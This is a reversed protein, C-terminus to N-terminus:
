WFKFITKLIKRLKELAKTDATSTQSFNKTPLNRPLSASLVKHESAILPTGRKKGLSSYALYIENPAGEKDIFSFKSFPPTGASFIFPTVAIVSQDNWVAEFAEKYFLSINQRSNKEQDWGTETIFVPLSKSSLGELYKKEFYFTDISKASLFSSPMSFGPNPYSHSSIGDVQNFIGPVSQNMSSFFSYENMADSSNVSANDMGSPLIFFDSSKSKFSTVAYSLVQAYDAPDVKGGWEDARNVENFVVIYKNKIPWSLSTLFNSFDLVDSPTPKRWVKTNFYDGETALRIIPIIHHNRAEDMFNQWKVLDKDGAQIPVTLYGWDGGSSNVLKAADNLEAPYLIHIGFKNNPLSSPDYIALATPPFLFSLIQLIIFILVLHRLM